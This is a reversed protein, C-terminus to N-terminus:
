IHILSLALLSWILKTENWSEVDLLGCNLEASVTDYVDLVTGRWEDVRRSLAGPVTIKVSCALGGAFPRAAPTVRLLM